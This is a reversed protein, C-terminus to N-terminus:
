DHGYFTHNKGEGAGKDQEAEQQCVIVAGVPEPEGGEHAGIQQLGRKGPEARQGDDQLLHALRVSRGELAAGREFKTVASSACRLVSTWDNPSNVGEGEPPHQLLM